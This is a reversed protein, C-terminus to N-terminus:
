DATLEKYKGWSLIKDERAELLTDIPQEQAQRLADTLAKRVTVMIAAQDRHAGGVPENIM